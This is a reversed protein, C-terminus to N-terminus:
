KWWVTKSLYKLFIRTPSEVSVSWRFLSLSLNSCSMHRFRSFDELIFSIMINRSSFLGYYWLLLNTPIYKSPAAALWLSGYAAGSTKGNEVSASRGWTLILSVLGQINVVIKWPTKLRYFHARVFCDIQLWTRSNKLHHICVLCSRSSSISGGTKGERRIFVERKMGSM